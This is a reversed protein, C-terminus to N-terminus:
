VLEFEDADLHSRFVQRPVGRLSDLDLVVTEVRRRRGREVAAPRPLRDGRQRGPVARRQRRARRPQRRGRLVLNEIARARLLTSWALQAPAIALERRLHAPRLRRRSRSWVPFRLDYCILPCIRWGKLSASSAGTAPRTTSTSASWASCTVSTTTRSRGDPRVWLLRNFHATGTVSSSAARSRAASRRQRRACGASRRATCTRPRRQACGDHFGHSFMEPLVILDTHGALGGFHRALARRNADPDQWALDAQVMTVRLHPNM